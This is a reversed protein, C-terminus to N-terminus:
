QCPHLQKRLNEYITSMKLMLRYTSVPVSKSWWSPKMINHWCIPTSNAKYVLELFEVFFDRFYLNFIIERALTLSYQKLTKHLWNTNGHGRWKITIHLLSCEVFSSNGGPDLVWVIVDWVDNYGTKNWHLPALVYLILINDLLSTSVFIFM